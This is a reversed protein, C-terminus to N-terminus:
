MARVRKWRKEEQKWGPDQNVDKWTDRRHPMDNKWREATRKREEGNDGEGQEERSLDRERHLVGFTEEM